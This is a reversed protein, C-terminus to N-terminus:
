PAADVLDRLAAGALDAEPLFWAVAIAQDGIGAVRVVSFGRDTLLQGACSRFGPDDGEVIVRAPM